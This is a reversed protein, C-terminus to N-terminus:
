PPAPTLRNDILPKVAAALAQIQGPEHAASLTVRLRASGRAVTPYRVAPVFFGQRLLEEFAAVARQEEGIMVPLITSHPVNPLPLLTRLYDVNRWLRSELAAGEPTGLLDVAALAAAAAAPAPATSFIFSRARNVLYSIFQRSGALFGGSAGLAKGLTGMQVEVRGSLGLAELLGSRRAGYVGTAHAEDVMLWAGHRDKLDVLQQLPAQDGDMSFISETVVMVQPRDPGTRQTDAWKLIRELDEPDNHRFVRLQAGSLRAADVLCAHSLKDLIVIDKTGVLATISGLAAAYGTSFTLAAEAGKLRALREELEHFVKLSGCILRSAGTGAGYDRAAQAAAARLAPHTSLGLYDNSSFNLVRRGNFEIETGPPSDIRRLERHLGQERLATLRAELEQDFTRNSM